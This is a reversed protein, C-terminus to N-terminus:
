RPFLDEGGPAQGPHAPSSVGNHDLAQDGRSRARLRPAVTEAAHHGVRRAPARRRDRRAARRIEARDAGGCDAPDVPWLRLRVAAPGQWQDLAAGPTETAADPRTETGSTEAGHPGSRGRAARGGAMQLDHHSVAWLEQHCREPSRRGEGAPGGDPPDDGLDRALTDPRRPARRKMDRTAETHLSFLPSTLLNTSPLVRLQPNITGTSPLGSM